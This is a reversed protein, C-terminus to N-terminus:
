RQPSFLILIELPRVPLALERLTRSELDVITLGDWGGLLYGGSLFARRGDPSMAIKEHARPLPIIEEAHTELNVLALNAGGTASGAAGTGVIAVRKGDPLLALGHQHTNAKTPITTVKGTAPDLDVLARGQFPLLLNGNARLAAYHPKDYAGGGLPAVKLTRATFNVADIVTVNYSDHDITYIARGDRSALVDFPRVGIQVAGIFSRREADLIQLESPKGNRHVGVYVRKGDPSVAIGMGGARYEGTQPVGLIERYPVRAIQKRERTDVISIGEATSIYAINNQALAIGWPSAGIEVQAIVGREPDVLALQNGNSDTVLLTFSASAPTAIVTAPLTPAGTSIPASPACSAAFIGFLLGAFIKLM